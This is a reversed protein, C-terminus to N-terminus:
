FSATTVRACVRKVKSISVACKESIKMGVNYRVLLTGGELVATAAEFRV